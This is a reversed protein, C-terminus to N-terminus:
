WDKGAVCTAGEYRMDLQCEIEKARGSEVRGFRGYLHEVPFGIVVVGLGEVNASMFSDYPVAWFNASGEGVVAGM